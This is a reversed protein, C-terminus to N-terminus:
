CTEASTRYIGGLVTAQHAGTVTPITGSRNELRQKALWAFVIAEICDPDIGKDATSLVNTHTHKRLCAILYKNHVGGGCVLLEDGRANHAKLADAVTIATLEALTAAVVGHSLSEQKRTHEALWDLSFYSTCTSKPPPKVFFPDKLMTQLLESDPTHAAAWSGDQDYSQNNHKLSWADMLCNGPGTDFGMVIQTGNLVTINSIGGINLIAQKKGARAFLLAHLASALPAGQGGAAIDARRFDAVVTIGTKYAVINPDGIQLTHPIEQTTDHLVTQGHLGIATITEATFNHNKIFNNISDSFLEGLAYDLQAYETIRCAKSQISKAQQVLNPEIPYSAYALLRPYDASFEVAAIDVADM